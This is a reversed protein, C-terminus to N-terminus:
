RRLLRPPALWNLYFAKGEEEMDRSSLAAVEGRKLECLTPDARGNVLLGVLVSFAPNHGVIMLSEESRSLLWDRISGASRDVHLMESAELRDAIGLEAAVTEATQWARPLPSSVIRDPAVGLGRLGRGIERMRRQGKPTLPRDADNLGPTGYAVAIGHRVIYLETM